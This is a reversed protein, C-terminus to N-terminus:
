RRIACAAPGSRGRGPRHTRTLIPVHGRLDRSQLNFTGREFHLDTLLDSDDVKFNATACTAASGWPDNFYSM